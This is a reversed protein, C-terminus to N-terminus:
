STNNGFGSIRPIKKGQVADDFSKPFLSNENNSNQWGKMRAIQPFCRKESSSM